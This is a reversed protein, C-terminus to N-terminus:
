VALLGLAIMAMAWCEVWWIWNKRILFFLAVGAAFIAAHIWIGYVFYLGGFGAAITWITGLTHFFDEWSNPDTRHEPSMGTLTLGIAMLGAWVPMVSMAILGLMSLGLLVLWVTFIGRQNGELRYTSASISSLIEGERIWIFVPFWAFLLIQTIVLTTM